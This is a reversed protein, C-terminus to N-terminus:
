LPWTLVKVSDKGTTVGRDDKVVECEAVVVFVTVFVIVLVTPHTVMIGILGVVVLGEPGMVVWM